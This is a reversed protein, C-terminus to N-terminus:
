ALHKPPPSVGKQVTTSFNTKFVILNKVSSFKLYIYEQLVECYVITNDFNIKHSKKDSNNKKQTTKYKAILETEKKDDVCYIIEKGNVNERSVVDYMKGQLTFEKEEEWVIDKENTAVDIQILENKATHSLVYEKMQLKLCYQQVVFYAYYGVQSFVVMSLLAIVLIKKLSILIIVFIFQSKTSLM